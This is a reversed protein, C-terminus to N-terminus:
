PSAATPQASRPWRHRAGRDSAGRRPAALAGAQVCARGQRLGCRRRRVGGQLHHHRQHQARPAGARRTAPRAARRRRVAPTRLRRGGARRRGRRHLPRDAVVMAVPEGVYCVEGDALAFPWAKDLPMGSNSHRVMRRQAMCRRSITSRSCRTFARCRWRPTKDVSPDARASAPQARVRRAARGAARHRRRLPGQRAAAARRGPPHHAIASATTSM